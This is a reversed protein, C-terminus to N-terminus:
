IWKTKIDRAANVLVVHVAGELVNHVTRRYIGASEMAVIPCEHDEYQRATMMHIFYRRKDKRGYDDPWSELAPM